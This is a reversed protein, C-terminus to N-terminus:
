RAAIRFNDFAAIGPAALQAGSTGAKLEIMLAGPPLASMNWPEAYLVTWVGPGTRRASATEFMVM